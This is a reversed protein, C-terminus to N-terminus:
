IKLRELYEEENKLIAKINKIEDIVKARGVEFPPLTGGYEEPIYEKTLM